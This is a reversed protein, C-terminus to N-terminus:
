RAQGRNRWKRWRRRFRATPRDDSARYIERMKQIADQDKITRLHVEVKQNIAAVKETYAVWLLIGTLLLVLGVGGSLMVWKNDARQGSVAAGAAAGVLLYGLGTLAKGIDPRRVRRLGESVEVLWMAATDQTTAKAEWISELSEPAKEQSTDTKPSYPGTSGPPSAATDNM